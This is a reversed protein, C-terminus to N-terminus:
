NKKSFDVGWEVYKRYFFRLFVKGVGLKINVSMFGYLMWVCVKEKM